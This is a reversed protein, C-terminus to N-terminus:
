VDAHPFEENENVNDFSASKELEVYQQLLDDDYIFFWVKESKEKLEYETQHAQLAHSNQM